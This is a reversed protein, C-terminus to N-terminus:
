VLLVDVGAVRAQAVLEAPADHDTIITDIQDLPAFSAVGVRGWKTADLV